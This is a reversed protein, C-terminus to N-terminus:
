ELGEPVGEAVVQAQGEHQEDETHHQHDRADLYRHVGHRHPDQEDPDAIADLLGTRSGRRLGSRYVLLGALAPSKTKAAAARSPYRRARGMRRLRGPAIRSVPLM